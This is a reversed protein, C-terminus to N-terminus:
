VEQQQLPHPSRKHVHAQGNQEDDNQNQDACKDEVLALNTKINLKIRPQTDDVHALNTNGDDAAGVRVRACACWYADDRYHLARM